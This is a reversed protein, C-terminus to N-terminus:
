LTHHHDLRAIRGRAVLNADSLRCRHRRWRDVVYRIRARLGAAKQQDLTDALVIKHFCVLRRQPHRSVVRKFGPAFM